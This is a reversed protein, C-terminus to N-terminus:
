TKHRLNRQKFIFRELEIYKDSPQNDSFGCKLCLSLMVRCVQAKGSKALESYIFEWDLITEKHQLYVYIDM